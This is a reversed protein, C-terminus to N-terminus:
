SQGSIASVTSFTSFRVAGSIEGHDIELYRQRQVARYFPYSRRHDSEHSDIHDRVVGRIPRV